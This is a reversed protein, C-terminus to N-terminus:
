KRGEEYADIFLNIPSIKLETEEQKAKKYKGKIDFFSKVAGFAAGVPGLLGILNAGIEIPVDEEVIAKVEDQIRETEAKQCAFMEQMNEQLQKVTNELDKDDKTKIDHIGKRLANRMYDLEGRERLAGLAGLPVNGLWNFENKQLSNLIASDIGVGGITYNNFSWSAENDSIPEASFIKSFYEQERARLTQYGIYNGFSEADSTNGIESRMKRKFDRTGIGFENVFKEQSRFRLPLLDKDPIIEFLEQATPNAKLLHEIEKPDESVNFLQSSYKIYDFDAQNKLADFLNQDMAKFTVPYIVLPQFDYTNLMLESIRWVNFIHRIQAKLYFRKDVFVDSFGYSLNTIPDPLILTDIYLVSRKLFRELDIPSIDGSYLCKLGTSEELYQQVTAANRKWFEKIEIDLDKTTDILLDAVFDYGAIRNAMKIHPFDDKLNLHHKIAGFYSDIIQFYEEYIAKLVKGDPTPM